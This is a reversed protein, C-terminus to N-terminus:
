SGDNEMFQTNLTAYNSHSQNTTVALTLQIADHMNFWVIMFSVCTHIL